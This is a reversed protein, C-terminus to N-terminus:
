KGIPVMGAYGFRFMPQIDFILGPWFPNDRLPSHAMRWTAAYLFLLTALIVFRALDKRPSPFAPATEPGASAISALFIFAHMWSLHILRGWDAAFTFTLAFLVFTLWLFSRRLRGAALAPPRESAYVVVPLGALLTCTLYGGLTVVSLVQGLVSVFTTIIGETLYHAAELPEFAGPVIARWAAIMREQVGADGKFVVAFAIDAAFYVFTVAVIGATWGSSRDRGSTHLLFAVAAFMYVIGLEHILAVPAYILLTLVFALTPSRLREILWLSLLFAAIIVVDKRGFAAIDNLPFLLAAPSLLFLLSGFTLNRSALLIIRLAVVIYLVIFFATLSAQASLWPTLLYALEGLLGRRVLGGGYSILLESWVYSNPYGNWFRQAQLVYLVAATICLVVALWASRGTWHSRAFM